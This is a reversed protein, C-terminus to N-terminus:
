LKSAFDWDPYVFPTGTPAEDPEIQQVDIKLVERERYVTKGIIGTITVWSDDAYQNSDPLEIIFGYPSVDAICHTMAMRALILQSQSLGPERYIFGKMKIQKGVFNDVFLDLAQMKEIFWEDKMEILDQKYLRMALKAYDRNYRDTKFMEQLEPDENGDVLVSEEPVASKGFAAGGLNMGKTQILTGGLAIDPLIAAFLLPLIFLGYIIANKWISSGHHKGCNCVFIPHKLSRISIYLQFIGTIFLGAAAFEVYIFLNPSLYYLIKGSLVMYAIVGAFALLIGARMFNHISSLNLKKM